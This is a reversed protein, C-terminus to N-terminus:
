NNREVSRHDEIRDCVHERADSVAVKGTERGHFGGNESMM